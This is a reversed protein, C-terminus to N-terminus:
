AFAGTELLSKMRALFRAAVRGNVLRHDVSLTLRAMPAIWINKGDSVPTPTVAGVALAASHEPYIIADFSHVPFMGLNSVLFCSGDVDQPGLARSEAKRTLAEIEQSIATIPKAAPGRVVPLYLDDGVGVAVAIDTGGHEVVEEAKLYRRFLPTEAIAMAACKVLIADWSVGAGSAKARERAAAANTMDVNVNVHYVPKERHSQSVKRAVVAQSRSLAVASPAPRPGPGPGPRPVTAAKLVDERTIRGGVGTGKV